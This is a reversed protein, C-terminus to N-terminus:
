RAQGATLLRPCLANVEKLGCLSILPEHCLFFYTDKDVTMQLRIKAVSLLSVADIHRISAICILCVSAGPKCSDLLYQAAKKLDVENDNVAFFLCYFNNEVNRTLVSLAALTNHNGPCGISV